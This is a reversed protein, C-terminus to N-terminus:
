AAKSVKLRQEWNWAHTIITHLDSLTPNWGLVSRAASGDAILSAPDGARRAEIQVPIDCGTVARSTEIVEMVSYGVGTGLNFRAKNMGGQLARLLLLHAESLDTVHIYDRICTGDATPYDNGFVKIHARRGSAVQLVLPILHTEPEHCEGITGDPEAGAANFYRLCGFRLGYAANYDELLQEIMLKSRGYPNIPNTPHKEDIPVYEPNGFTAATSSFIFHQVNHKVMANLLTITRAVNNDYYKAPDSVSEGVQIYSAFHMVGGFQRSSFLQDLFAADGIDGVILEAGGQVSSAYGCVLNDLVVPTLGARQLCRVMHSGIYGAGGVVLIPHTMFIM